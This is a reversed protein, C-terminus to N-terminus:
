KVENFRHNCSSGQLHIHRAFHCNMTKTSSEKMHIDSLIIANYSWASYRITDSTHMDHIYLGYRLLWLWVEESGVVSVRVAQCCRKFVQISVSLPLSLLRRVARVRPSSVNFSWWKQLAVHILTRNFRVFHVELFHFCSSKSIFHVDINQQFYAFHTERTPDNCIRCGLM